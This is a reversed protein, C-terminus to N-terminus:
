RREAAANAQVLPGGLINLVEHALQITCAAFCPILLVETWAAFGTTTKGWPKGTSPVRNDRKQAPLLM